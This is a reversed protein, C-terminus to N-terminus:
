NGIYLAVTFEAVKKMTSPIEYLIEIEGYLSIESHVRTNPTKLVFEVIVGTDLGHFESHSHAGGGTAGLSSRIYSHMRYSHM